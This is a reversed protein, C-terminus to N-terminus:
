RSRARARSAQGRFRVAIAAVGAFLLVVVGAIWPRQLYAEVGEPPTAVPMPVTPSSEARQRAVPGFQRDLWDGVLKAVDELHAPAHAGEISPHEKNKTGLLEFMRRSAETTGFDDRDNIMLVPIRVRPAFNKANVRPPADPDLGGSLLILTKLRDEVVAFLPAEMAGLSFGYYAIKSADIEPRTELFDISSGLDYVWHETFVEALNDPPPDAFREYTGDFVPRLVARGSKLLFGVYTPDLRRSNNLMIAWAEPFFIVTQYPRKWGKPLYLHATMPVNGYGPNFSVIEHTWDPTDEPDIAIHNKLGPRRKYDYTSWIVAFEKDGVPVDRSYDHTQWNVDQLVDQSPERSYKAGRFGYNAKREFPSARYFGGFMDPLDGFGGGETYREEGLGNSCWERVNGAMDYAGYATLGRNDTVPKPRDGGFNSHGPVDSFISADAAFGAAYGWHHLTPLVKGKYAAFASAEYWSVGGVPLDDEGAPFKGYKWFAPGPMGTQDKFKAMAEKRSLKRGKEIFPGKWYDEKEYGGDNVFAQFERNTVEYRDIWFEDLPYTKAGPWFAPSDGNPVRIM